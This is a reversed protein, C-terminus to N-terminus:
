TADSPIERMVTKTLVARNWRIASILPFGPAPEAVEGGFIEALDTGTETRVTGSAEGFEAHELSFALKVVGAATDAWFSAEFPGGGPRERVVLDCVLQFPASPGSRFRFPVGILSLDFEGEEFSLDDTVSIPFDAAGARLFDAYRENDTADWLLYINCVPLADGEVDRVGPLASLCGSGDPSEVVVGVASVKTPVASQGVVYSECRLTEVWVLPRETGPDRVPEYQAPLRERVADEVGLVVAARDKCDELVVSDREYPGEGPFRSRMTDYRYGLARVDAVDAPTADFPPHMRDTRTNAHCASDDLAHSCTDPDFADIGHVDQWEAWLRDINSHHLFFVPDNPSTPLAMTGLRPGEAATGLLGGVWAHVLNHMAPGTTVTMVGDPGCLMSGSPVRAPGVGSWFGETAARFSRNPDSTTDYPAVDYHPRDLVWSVDDSTPLETFGPASGFRRTLHTTASARWQLGIPHVELRWQGRRFPGTTVAFGEDPDGDGGMFDDAFVADTSVPDTWDWYPVTITKGSVERLANEFELLLLRHWPLFMPGGHARMMSHGGGCPYLALHWAVFQDYYSLEPDFPSPTSKLTLVATVFDHRELATLDKANKRLLLIDSHFAPAAPPATGPDPATVVVGREAAHAVPLVVHALALAATCAAIRRAPRRKSDM